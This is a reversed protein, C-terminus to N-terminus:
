DQVLTFRDETWMFVPRDYIILPDVAPNFDPGGERVYHVNIRSLETDFGHGIVRYVGGKKHTYVNGIRVSAAADALQMLIENGNLM